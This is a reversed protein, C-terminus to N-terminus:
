PGLAMGEGIGEPCLVGDGRVLEVRRVLRLARDRGHWIASKLELGMGVLFGDWCGMSHQAWDEFCDLDRCSVRELAREPVAELRVKRDVSLSLSGNLV